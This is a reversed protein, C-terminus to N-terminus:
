HQSFHINNFCQFQRDSTVYQIWSKRWIMWYDCSHRLVVRIVPALWALWACCHIFFPWDCTEQSLLMATAGSGNQILSIQWFAAVGGFSSSSFSFDDLLSPCANALAQSTKCKSIRSWDSEFVKMMCKREGPLLCSSRTLCFFICELLIWSLFLTYSAENKVRWTDGVSWVNVAEQLYKLIEFGTLFWGPLRSAQISFIALLICCFVDGLAQFNYRIGM